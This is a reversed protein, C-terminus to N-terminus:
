VNIIQMKEVEPSTILLYVNPGRIRTVLVQLSLAQKSWQGKFYLTPDTRGLAKKKKFEESVIMKM